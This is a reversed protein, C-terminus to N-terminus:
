KLALKFKCFSDQTLGQHCHPCCLCPQKGLCVAWLGAAPQSPLSPQSAQTVQLQGLEAELGGSLQKSRQETVLLGAFSGLRM